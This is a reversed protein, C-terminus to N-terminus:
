AKKGLIFDVGFTFQNMLNLSIGNNKSVTGATNKSRSYYYSVGGFDANILLKPLAQYYIGPVVAAIYSTTTSKSKGGSYTQQSKNSSVGVAPELYWGLQKAVPMFKRWYIAASLGWNTSKDDIGDTKTRHYGVGLRAGLVSNNGVGFGIRPSLNANSSSSGASGTSSSSNYGTGLSAGLLVDGPKIQATSASTIALAIATFLLHRRKM